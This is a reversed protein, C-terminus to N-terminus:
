QIPSILILVNRQTTEDCVKISVCNILASDSVKTNRSAILAISNAYNLICNLNCAATLGHQEHFSNRVRLRFVRLHIIDGDNIVKIETVNKNRLRRYCANNQMIRGELNRGSDRRDYRGGSPRM